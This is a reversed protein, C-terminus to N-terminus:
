SSGSCSLDSKQAEQSRLPILGAGPEGLGGPIEIGTSLSVTKRQVKGYILNRAGRNAVNFRIPAEIETM